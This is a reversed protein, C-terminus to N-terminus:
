KIRIQCTHSLMWAPSARTLWGALTLKGDM